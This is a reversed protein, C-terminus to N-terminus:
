ASKCPTLEKRERGRVADLLKLDNEFMLRLQLETKREFRHDHKRRLNYRFRPYTLESPREVETQISEVQLGLQKREKTTFLAGQEVERSISAYWRLLTALSANAYGPDNFHEGISLVQRLFADRTPMDGKLEIESSFRACTSATIAECGPNWLVSSAPGAGRKRPMFHGQRGHHRYPNGSLNLLGALLLVAGVAPSGASAILLTSGPLALKWEADMWPAPVSPIPDNHNVLRHHVVAAAAEVFESDGTRPAGYTYLQLDNSFDRQLWEALLLAIAGGLSHGTVIFTQNATHFARLYRAVFDKAALFANHFGRHVAGQDDVHPVQRADADRLFDHMEQSGRVSILVFRDNHTIFAQTDTNQHNLFHVDEPFAWGQKAEAAYREPDYPVVELRKSYPVEECLLHFPGSTKFQTPRVLHALQGHLVKGICGPEDYPPKKCANKDDPSKNFPAYSLMCMVSLHYANLACFAKDRSFLPSYARLAKVELVNHTNPGLAVGLQTPSPLVAEKLFPSPRPARTADPDPLHSAKTHVFDRVEVRWFRANEQEARQQALYTLGNKRPGTPTQEAAVQLSTLPLKFSKRIKLEEYWPDVIGQYPMSMDLIVPGCYVNNVRGYGDADLIGTYTVGMRDHIIYDLGAYTKGCGHEDVLRFSCWHGRKPCTEKLDTIM